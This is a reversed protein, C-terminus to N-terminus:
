ICKRYGDINVVNRLQLSTAFSRFMWAIYAASNTEVQGARSRAQPSGIREREVIRPRSSPFNNNKVQPM